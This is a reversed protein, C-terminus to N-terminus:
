QGHANRPVLLRTKHTLEGGRQVFEIDAVILELRLPRLQDAAGQDVSPDRRLELRETKCTSCISLHTWFPRHRHRLKQFDGGRQVMEIEPVVTNARLAGCRESAAELHSRM